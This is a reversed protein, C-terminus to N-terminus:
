VKNLYAFEGHHKKAARNYALAAEKETKFLGLYIEKTNVRIKAAWPNRKCLYSYDFVGKYMRGSRPGCNM